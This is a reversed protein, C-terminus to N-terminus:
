DTARDLMGLAAQSRGGQIAMQDDLAVQQEPSLQIESFWNTIPEGTAPDVGAASQWTQSGWPTYLDPRNAYTQQNVLDKSAEAQKEAAATYDPAPPPSKKGM